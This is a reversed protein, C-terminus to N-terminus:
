MGFAGGNVLKKMEVVEILLRDLFSNIADKSMKATPVAKQIEPIILQQPENSTETEIRYGFVDKVLWQKTEPGCQTMNMFREGTAADVFYMSAQRRGKCPYMLKEVRNKEPESAMIRNIWKDPYTIGCALLIDRGSFMTMGEHLAVRVSNAASTIIATNESTNKVESM